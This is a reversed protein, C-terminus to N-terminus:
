KKYVKSWFNMFGGSGWSYDPYLWDRDVSKIGFVESWHSCFTYEKYITNNIDVVELLKKFADDDDVLVINFDAYKDSMNRALNLIFDIRKISMPCSELISKEIVLIRNVDEGELWTPDLNWIHYLITKKNKNITNKLFEFYVKSNINKDELNTFDTVLDFTASSLMGNPLKADYLNDYDTDLYTGIERNKLDYKNINEQNAVYKKNSFTGAVWQWSFTNSAMDGDLLHYYMWASVDQWKYNAINTALMSTWMRAHNHMYGTSGLNKINADISKIGTISNKEINAKTKNEVSEGRPLDASESIDLYAKPIGSKHQMNSGIEEYDNQYVNDFINFGAKDRSQWVRHFYERWSLEQIMKEHVGNKSSDHEGIIKLVQPLSVVGHTLYPSIYSVDGDLFNRSAAYKYSNINKIKEIIKEYDTEFQPM